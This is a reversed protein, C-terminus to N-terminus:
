KCFCESVFGKITKWIDTATKNKTVNTNTANTEQKEPKVNGSTKPTASVQNQATSKNQRKIQINEIIRKFTEDDIDRGLMKKPIKLYWGRGTGRDVVGYGYFTSNWKLEKQFVFDTYDKGDRVVYAVIRGKKNIVKHIM